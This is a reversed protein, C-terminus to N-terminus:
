LKFTLSDDRITSHEQGPVPVQYPYRDRFRMERINKEHALCFMEHISLPNKISPNCEDAYYTAEIYICVIETVPRLMPKIVVMTVYEWSLLVRIEIRTVWRTLDFAVKM